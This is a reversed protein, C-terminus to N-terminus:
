MEWLRDINIAKEFPELVVRGRTVNKVISYRKDDLRLVDIEHNRPHALWMHSVGAKAYIERKRGKDLWSTSPSLGECVWDPALQMTPGKPLSRLRSRRWGALDPILLNRGFRVETEIM